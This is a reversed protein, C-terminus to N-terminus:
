SNNAMARVFMGIGIVVLGGVIVNFYTIPVDTGFLLNSFYLLGAVLGSYVAITLVICMIMFLALKM